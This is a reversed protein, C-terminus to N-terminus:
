ARVGPGAVSAVALRLGDVTCCRVRIDCSLDDRAIRVGGVDANDWHTELSVFPLELGIASVCKYAAEKAAWVSAWVLPDHSERCHQLEPGTLAVHFGAIASADPAGELDVGLAHWPPSRGAVAVARGAAHAISGCWGSPWTPAPGNRGVTLETAGAQALAARAALRGAIFERRRRPHMADQIVQLGTESAHVELGSDDVQLWGLTVGAPLCDRSNTLAHSPIDMTQQTLRM